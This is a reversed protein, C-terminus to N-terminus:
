SQPEEFPNADLTDAPTDALTDALSDAADAQDAQEAQEAQAQADRDAALGADWGQEIGLAGAARRWRTQLSADTVGIDSEVVCGGRTISADSVLRAGRATLVDAAGALVLAHDSPNVRLTIHKASLLLADLAEEAVQAILEPRTKLESRVVQRALQTASAALARAMEQQLDDLQGMLSQTLAGMQASLQSAFSQKFADLAAMGDRYGDQYGQQRTSRM